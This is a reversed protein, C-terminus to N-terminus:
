TQSEICECTRRQGIGTKPQDIYSGRRSNAETVVAAGVASLQQRLREAGTAGEEVVIAIAPLVNKQHVAAIPGFMFIPGSIFPRRLGTRELEIAVITVACEGVHGLVGPEVGLHVAHPNRDSIVIVVAIRVDQNGAYALVPQELVGALACEDINSLRAPQTAPLSHARGGQPKIEVAVSQQVQKDAVVDLPRGLVIHKATEVAPVFRIARGFGVASFGAPQKVIVAISGKLIDGGGASNEVAARLGQAYGHEVVIVIAPRVQEHGIIGLGILEIAILTVTRELVY